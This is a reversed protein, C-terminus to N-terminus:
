KEFDKVIKDLKSMQRISLLEEKAAKTFAENKNENFIVDVFLKKEVPSLRFIYEVDEKPLYIFDRFPKMKLISKDFTKIVDKNIFMHVNDSFAESLSVLDFHSATVFVNTDIPTGDLRQQKEFAYRALFVEEDFLVDEFSCGEFSDADISMEKTFNFTSLRTGYFASNLISNPQFAFTVNKLAVCNSAFSEPIKKINALIVLDELKEMNRCVASMSSTRHPITLSTIATEEFLSPGLILDPKEDNDEFIVKKLNYCNRFTEFAIVKVNLPIFIEEFLTKAFARRGIESVSPPFTFDSINTSTFADEGISPISAFQDITVSKLRSCNLFLKNPISLDCDYTAERLDKCGECIGIGLKKINKGFKINEIGTRSLAAPGITEVYFLDINKLNKMNYFAHDGLAKVSKPLIVKKFPSFALADDSISVKGEEFTIKEIECKTKCDPNFVRFANKDILTRPPIIVNSITIESEYLEDFVNQMITVDNPFRIIGDEFKEPDIGCINKYDTSTYYFGDKEIKEVKPM